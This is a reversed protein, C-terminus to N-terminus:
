SPRKIARWGIDRRCFGDPWSIRDVAEYARRKAEEVSSGLASVNLVRGGAAFLRGDREVTGAEFVQVTSSNQARAGSIESGKGYSGPYGKTAMVVTLAADERWRPIAGRMDGRASAELLDLVDSQLRMMLAQCEPDGFRVNYEILKPGDATVMLGLFLVGQFPTGRTKMGHITPAIIENVTRLMVDDTMVPAPSYAGMGGTNPGADGDFARKHDQADEVDWHEDHGYPPISM